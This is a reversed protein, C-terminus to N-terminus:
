NHEASLSYCEAHHAVNPNTVPRMRGAAQPNLVVPRHLATKWAVLSNNYFEVLIMHM